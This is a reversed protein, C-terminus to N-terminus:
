GPRNKRETTQPEIHSITGSKGSGWWWSSWGAIAFILPNRANRMLADWTQRNISSYHPDHEPHTHWEGVFSETGGSLTWAAIAAVQHGADRRNFLTRRLTRRCRPPVTWSRSTRVM